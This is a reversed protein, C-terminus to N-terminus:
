RGVIVCLATLIKGLVTKPSVDGYGLTTITVLGMWLGTMMGCSGKTFEKNSRQEVMWVLIGYILIYMASVFFLYRIELIGDALKYWFSIRYRPVIVVM